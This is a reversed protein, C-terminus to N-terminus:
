KSYKWESSFGMNIAIQFQPAMVNHMTKRFHHFNMTQFDKLNDVKFLLIHDELMKSNQSTKSVIKVAQHQLEAFSDFYLLYDPLNDSKASNVSKPTPIINWLLDHAVFRWPIFHDLSFDEDQIIQDSYICSIQGTQKLFTKWFSKANRLDRRQPEFLKSAINPTNPNNKQLYNILHWLCFGTLISIHQQIYNFWDPNIEIAHNPQSVFKYLCPLKSNDFSTNALTAIRRNIEWDNVGRLKKSFFPRLFRYPVYNALSFIEKGISDFKELHPKTTEIIFKRTSDIPLNNQEDLADVLNVLRDQKGFSLRFYFHPYWVSAVMRGLLSNISIIRSQEEKIHELISLFWYFKYSNTVNDFCAALSSIPLHSSLPLDNM